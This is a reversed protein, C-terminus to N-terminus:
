AAGEPISRGPDAGFTVERGTVETATIRVYHEKVTPVWPSLGAADAALIDAEHELVECEGKVVVSWGGAHDYDDVEFAVTPRVTAAFLKTGEATRFLISGADVVYNVPFIDPAGGLVVALRGFGASALLAWSEDTSLERIPTDMGVNQM